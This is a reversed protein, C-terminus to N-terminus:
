ELWARDMLDIEFDETCDNSEIETEFEPVEKFTKLLPIFNEVQFGYDEKRGISRFDRLVEDMGAGRQPLEKSNIFPSKECNTTGFSSKFPIPISKHTIEGVKSLSSFQGSHKTLDDVYLVDDIRAVINSAM